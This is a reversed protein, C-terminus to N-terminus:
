DALEKQYYKKITDDPIETGFKGDYHTDWPSGPEHCLIQLNKFGWDGYHQITVDIIDREDESLISAFFENRNKDMKDDTDPITGCYNLEQVIEDKWIKLEHYLVPIVPGYKWAEIRDRVLPNNTVALTRGHSIFVLKILQFPTFKSGHKYISHIIYDSVLLSSHGRQIGM